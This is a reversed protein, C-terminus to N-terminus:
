RHQSPTGFLFYRNCWAGTQFYYFFEHTLRVLPACNDALMGPLSSQYSDSFAIVAGIPDASNFNPMQQLRHKLPSVSNLKIFADALIHQFHHLQKKELAIDTDVGMQSIHDQTQTLTQGTQQQKVTEFMVELAHQHYPVLPQPLLSFTKHPSARQGTDRCLFRMIPLNSYTKFNIVVKKRYYVGIALPCAAGGCIPCALQYDPTPFQRANVQGIYVAVAM